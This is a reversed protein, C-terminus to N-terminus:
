EEKSEKAGMSLLADLLTKKTKKSFLFLPLAALLAPLLFCLAFLPETFVLLLGTFLMLAAWLLVVAGSVAPRSFFIRYTNEGKVKRATLTCSFLAFRFKKQLTLSFGDEGFKGLLRDKDALTLRAKATLPTTKLDFSRHFKEVSRCFTIKM